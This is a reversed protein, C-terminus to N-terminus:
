EKEEETGTLTYVTDLVVSNIANIIDERTVAYIKEVADSPSNIEHDFIQSSYWSELGGISDSVTNFGNACSMKAAQIEEDTFNGKKMEELQNMIENYAAEINKSEVGCEISVWGKIKNYRSVCYYCLSLKERVNLFLKSNATGGFMANALRLAMTNEDPEAIGTRFGIVMKSQSVEQKENVRKVEKVDKRVETILDTAKRRKKLLYKSFMEMSKEPSSAGITMLEFRGNEIANQWAKYIDEPTIKEVEEKTGYKSISFKEDAFMIEICRKLAYQKKDNYISDINDLVQRKEREVDVKSFAGNEVNPEFIMSCLLETLEESVGNNDLTYKDDIGQASLTISISEGTKRTNGSISAGYLMSLRRNLDKMNPYKKCSSSLVGSLITNAVVNDKELPLYISVYIGGSKFKDDKISTFAVDENIIKKNIKTM